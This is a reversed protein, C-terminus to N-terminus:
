ESYDISGGGLINVTGGSVCQMISGDHMVEVYCHLLNPLSLFGIIGLYNTM